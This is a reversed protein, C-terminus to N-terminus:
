DLRESLFACFAWRVGPHEPGVLALLTGPTGCLEGAPRQGEPEKCLLERGQCQGSWDAGSAPVLRFAAEELFAGQSEGPLHFTWTRVGGSREKQKTKPQAMRPM